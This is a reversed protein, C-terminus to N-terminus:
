EIKPPEYMTGGNVLQEYTRESYNGKVMDDKPYDKIADPEGLYKLGNLAWNAQADTQALRIEYILKEVAEKRMDLNGLCIAANIRVSAEPDQLAQEIEFLAPRAKKGLVRLGLIAWYRIIPDRDKLKEKFVPIFDPNQLAALNALEMIKALSYQDPSQAFEYITTSKNRDIDAMMPEPIFGADRAMHMKKDMKKRMEYLLSTYKEDRALNNIEHPDKKTDYLEEPPQPLYQASQISNTRGARYEVYQSVQGSQNLPYNLMQFRPRDPEYNRIYKWRGDTIARSMDPSEDFRGSFLLVTEPAEQKAPGMIIRGPMRDPVEAGAISLYTRPMDIFQTLRESVSGAAGPALNKWKEPVYVIFPVRTGSDFLFRKTRLTIGGHDSCYFIITNEAEGLEELERILSGVKSDMDAIRDYVRRWDMIVEPTNVQYPPVKIKDAPTKPVTYREPYFRGFIQSEHSTTINFVAFFPKGEPRNSYHADDGCEDWIEKNFSSTNYDTKSNNTVYYGARKLIVPYPELEAPVRYRSRMQFTGSTNAPIGLIWSSRVPSCVPANAFCNVYRVGKAALADLNPTSALEDGYCGLHTSNDESTIWLINPKENEAFGEQSYIFQSYVLFAVLISLFCKM